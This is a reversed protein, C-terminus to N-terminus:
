RTWLLVVGCASGTANYILPIQATGTYVEVGALRRPDTLADIQDQFEDSVRVGDVYILMEQCRGGSRQSYIRTRGFQVEAVTVGPVHRLLATTEFPNLSAIQEQTFFHGVGRSQRRYFGALRPPVYITKGASVVIEELELPLPMLEMDVRIQSDPASVSFQVEHPAYGIRRAALWNAQGDNLYLDARFTGDTETLAVIEGNISIPVNAVGTHSEAAVVTGTM